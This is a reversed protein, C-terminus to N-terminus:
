GPGFPLIAEQGLYFTCHKTEHMMYGSFNSGMICHWSPKYKEDFEKRVCGCHGERQRIQGAVSSCVGGLGM